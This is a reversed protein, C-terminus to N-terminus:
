KILKQFTDALLLEQSFSAWAIHFSLQKKYSIWPSTARSNTWKVAWHQYNEPQYNEAIRTTEGEHQLVMTVPGLM